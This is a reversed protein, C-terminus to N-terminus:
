WGQWLAVSLCSMNVPLGWEDKVQGDSLKYFTLEPPRIIRSMDPHRLPKGDQLQFAQGFDIIEVTLKDKLIEAFVKPMFHATEPTAVLYKPLSNSPVSHYHPIVPILKPEQIFRYMEVETYQDIGPIKVGIIGFHIDLSM